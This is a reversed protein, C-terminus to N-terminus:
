VEKFITKFLVNKFINIIPLISIINIFSLLLANTYM